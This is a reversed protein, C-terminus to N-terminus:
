KPFVALRAMQKWASVTVNKKLFGSNAEASKTLGLAQEPRVKALSRIQKRYVKALRLSESLNKGILWHISAAGLGRLTM